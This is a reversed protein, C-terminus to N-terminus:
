FVKKITHVGGFLQAKLNKKDNLPIGLKVSIYLLKDKTFQINVEPEGFPLFDHVFNLTGNVYIKNCNLGHYVLWIEM